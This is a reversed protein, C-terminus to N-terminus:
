GTKKEEDYKKQRQKRTRKAIYEEFLLEPKFEPESEQTIEAEFETKSKANHLFDSPEINKNDFLM